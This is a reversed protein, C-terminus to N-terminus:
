QCVGEFVKTNEFDKLHVAEATILANYFALYEDKNMPLNIYDKTGKDYRDGFYAINFDISNFDVIPAIADFFYLYEEGLINKLENCLLESTLPGTAIITPKSLDIKTVEEHVVNLNEYQMLTSTVLESFKERDVALAGGAPVRCKTACLILLSDLM